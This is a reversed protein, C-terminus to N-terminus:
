EKTFTKQIEKKEREWVFVEIEEEATASLDFQRIIIRLKQKLKNLTTQVEMRKFGLSSLLM